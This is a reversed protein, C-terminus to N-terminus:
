SLGIEIARHLQLSWIAGVGLISVGRGHSFPNLSDATSKICERFM